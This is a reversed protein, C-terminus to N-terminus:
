TKWRFARPARDPSPAAAGNPEFLGEVLEAFRRVADEPSTLRPPLPEGGNTHLM